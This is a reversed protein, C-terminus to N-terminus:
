PSLEMFHAIVLAYLVNLLGNILYKSDKIDLRHAKKGFCFFAINGIARMTSLTVLGLSILYIALTM